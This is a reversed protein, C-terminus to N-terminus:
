QPLQSPWTHSVKFSLHIDIMCAHSFEVYLPLIYSPVPSYTLKDLDPFQETNQGGFLRSEVRLIVPLDLLVSFFKM